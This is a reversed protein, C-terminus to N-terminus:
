QLELLCSPLKPLKNIDSRRSKLFSQPKFKRIKNYNQSMKLPFKMLNHRLRNNEVIINKTRM